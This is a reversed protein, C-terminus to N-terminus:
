ADPLVQKLLAVQKVLLPGMRDWDVVPAGGHVSPRLPTGLGRDDVFVHAFLKRAMEFGQREEFRNQLPHENVSALAIGQSGCWRAAEALREATRLTWLVYEVRDDVEAARQLWFEADLSPGLEPFDSDCLTGDFDLAIIIPDPM